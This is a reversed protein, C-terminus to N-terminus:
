HPTHDKVRAYVSGTNYQKREQCIKKNTDEFMVTSSVTLCPLAGIGAWETIVAQTVYYAGCCQVGM